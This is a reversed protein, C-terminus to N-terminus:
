QQSLIMTGAGKKLLTGSGSITSDITATSDSRNIAFITTGDLAMTGGISVNYTGGRDTRFTSGGAFTIDPDGAIALSTGWLTLQAGNAVTM